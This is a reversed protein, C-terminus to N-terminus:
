EGTYFRRGAVDAQISSHGHSVGQIRRLVPHRRGRAADRDGEELEPAQGSAPGHAEDQRPLGPHERPSRSTSCRKSRTRSRSRTRTSPSRSSSRTRTEKLRAAKETLAIPRKIVTEPNMSEDGWAARRSRRPPTRPCSWTTTVCCTTSTSARPRCFSATRAHQPDVTAPERQGQRRRRADEASGEADRARRRAEQDQDRRARHQRRVTLRGEKVMLRCPARSRASACADRASPLELGAAEAPTRARRRRLDARPDRRSARRGTGKQRYIKKNSGRVASREKRPTPAPAGRQRAAGDVVEHLLHEKVETGFVEDALELEGVKERKLNYVDVKMADTERLSKIEVDVGASLDLKMLADLTQQTPELIDICASTLACRSSSARSRTSTRAAFCRTAASARHAAPHAGGRARGHAAGDRRHRTTSKDLLQHDFAKLRIRIKTTDPM